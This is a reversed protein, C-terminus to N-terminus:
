HLSNTTDNEKVKENIRMAEDVLRYVDGDAIPRNNPQDHHTKGTRVIVLKESPVVIVRQGLHGLMTYFPTKYDYDMWVSYGYIKPENPNFAKTNPRVMKQVFTSALIQKGYWNGNNLLLQGLKAFDRATANFCCYTKEMGKPNDKSWQADLEMGMPQWFEEQFYQSLSKNKLAREIVIGLLQTDSSQYKFHGGPQAIFKRNLMQKVIDDGYYAKATPNLPFYYDEDWDYGSTMASLDGVTCQAGFKDDNFEPIFDTIKQDLSKIYGQEIAKGLMMTTFTKAMSFSNTLDNQAYGNFYYESLLQNDKIIVFGATGFDKMEKEFNASLPFQNYDLHQLWVRPSGALIINNDFDKYDDINATKEGKMYTLKVGRFIYDNGTAYLTLILICIIIIFWKIIKWLIKM